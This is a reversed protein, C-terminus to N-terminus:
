EADSEKVSRDRSVPQGEDEGCPDLSPVCGLSNGYRRQGTSTVDEDGCCEPQGTGQKARNQAFADAGPERADGAPRKQKEPKVVERPLHGAFPVNVKMIRVLMQVLRPVIMFMGMSVFVGMPMFMGMPCRVGTMAALRM